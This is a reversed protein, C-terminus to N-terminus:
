RVALENENVLLSSLECPPLCADSSLTSWERHTPTELRALIVISRSFHHSQDCDSYCSKHSVMNVLCVDSCRDTQACHTENHNAVLSLYELRSIRVMRFSRCSLSSWKQLVATGCWALRLGQKCSPVAHLLDLEGMTELNSVLDLVTASEVRRSVNENQGCLASGSSSLRNRQSDVSSKPELNCRLKTQAHYMWCQHM